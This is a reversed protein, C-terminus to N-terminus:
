LKTGSLRPVGINVPAMAGIKKVVLTGDVSDVVEGAAPPVNPLGDVGDMQTGLLMPPGAVSIVVGEMLGEGQVAVGVGENGEGQLEDWTVGEYTWAHLAGGLHFLEAAKGCRPLAM